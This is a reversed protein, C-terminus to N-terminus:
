PDPRSLDVSSLRISFTPRHARSRYTLVDAPTAERYGSDERVYLTTM